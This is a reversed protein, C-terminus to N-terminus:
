DWTQVYARLFLAGNAVRSDQKFEKWARFIHLATKGLSYFDQKDRANMMEDSRWGETM